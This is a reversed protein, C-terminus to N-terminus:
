AALDNPVFRRAMREGARRPAAFRRVAAHEAVIWWPNLNFKLDRFVKEEARL